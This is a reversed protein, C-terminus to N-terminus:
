LASDNQYAFNAETLTNNFDDVEKKLSDIHAKQSATLNQLNVTKSYNMLETVKNAQQDQISLTEKTDNILILNKVQGLSSLDKKYLSEINQISTRETEARKDRKAIASEINQIDSASPVDKQLYITYVSNVSGTDTSYQQEILNEDKLLKNTGADAFDSLAISLLLAVPLIILFVTRQSKRTIPAKIACIFFVLVPLQITAAVLGLRMYDMITEVLIYFITTYLLINLVNRKNRFLEIALYFFFANAILDFITEINVLTLGATYDNLIWTTFSGLIQFLIVFGLIWNRRRELRKQDEPTNAEPLSVVTGADDDRKRNLYILFIYVGLGVWALDSLAAATVYLPHDIPKSILLVAAILNCVVLVAGIIAIWYSKRKTPM